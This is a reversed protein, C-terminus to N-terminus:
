SQNGFVYVMNSLVTIQNSCFILNNPPEWKQTLQTPYFQNHPLQAMPLHTVRVETRQVGTCEEQHLRCREWHPYSGPWSACCSFRWWAGQQLLVHLFVLLYLFWSSRNLLAIYISYQTVYLWKFHPPMHCQTIRHQQQTQLINSTPVNGQCCDDPWTVAM